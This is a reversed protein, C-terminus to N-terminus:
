RKYRRVSIRPPPADLPSYRPPGVFRYVLAYGLSLFAGLVVIYVFAIGLVAYLDQQGEIFAWVPALSSIGWLTRPMSPYGMLELPMPWNQKVAIQVTMLALLYSILPVILIMLCGIGRWIPHPGQPRPPTRRQAM